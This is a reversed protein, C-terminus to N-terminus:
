GVRSSLHTPLGDRYATAPLYKDFVAAVVRVLLSGLPSTLRLVEPEVLVLGDAALEDVRRLEDAFYENFSIGYRSELAHRTIVGHGYLDNLLERRICDDTALRLGRETALGAAVAKSWAATTKVNQAFARDLLSIASPGLGLVELGKGTTMGQFTRRLTGERNARALAEDPRAFHDLGIFEYGADLFRNIALLNLELPLDGSPLDQRRFVKQWRFMDPIVALRYFAVRDPTLALTKDLTDAMSALTQFPLGYILDFNISAFGLARCWDVLRQVLSFPQVRQVANQVAPDFDQVGVSVRNFGWERLIQLQEYTTTRPDLEVAKEADAAINFRRHLLSCLRRLQGPLLFTPSGGGLHLQCVEGTGSAAALRGSEIELGDLLADGPDAAARKSPSVIEKTCACYYCLRECFPIHVYVSLPRRQRSTQALDEMFDQPGYDTVWVPAVPYSTHRPLALTAYRRYTNREVETLQFPIM